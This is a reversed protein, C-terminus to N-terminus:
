LDPYDMWASGSQMKSEMFKEALYDWKELEGVLQPWEWFPLSVVKYGLQRLQKRKLLTSGNPTRSKGDQRQEGWVPKCEAVRVDVCTKNLVYLPLESMLFLGGGLAVM